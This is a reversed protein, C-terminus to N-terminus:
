ELEEDADPAETGDTDIVIEDEVVREGMEGTLEDIPYWHKKGDLAPMEVECFGALSAGTMIGPSGDALSVKKVGVSEDGFVAERSAHVKVKLGKSPRLDL